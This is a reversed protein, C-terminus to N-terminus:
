READAVFPELSEESFGKAALFRLTRVSRGRAAVVRRARIREPELGALAEAALVSPVGQRELDDRIMADGAGRRALAVARGHAFREDDVYGARVLAEVADQCSEEDLGGRALRAALSARTHDRARLARLGAERAERTADGV